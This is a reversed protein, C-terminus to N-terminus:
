RLTELYSALPDLADATLGLSPMHNGPKISQPDSLWQILHARDNPLAGAALMRRSALHTLDPGLTASASTGAINHCLTCASSMFVDLGRAAHEDRPQPATELQKAKWATFTAADEVVVELAMKAHQAGCFEACQGRYIGVREPRLDISGPRGPILDRKGHLSPVWFSHIVDDAMLTVHVSSNVPVHIENATHFHQSPDADLYEVDWWWQHATIRLKVDPNNAAQAIQRDILYSTATLGMLGVVILAMWLGLTKSLGHDRSMEPGTARRARVVAIILFILVLAYMFGCVGLMVNWLWGIRDAHFGTTHLASHEAARVAYSVFIVVLVWRRM